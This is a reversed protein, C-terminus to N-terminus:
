LVIFSRLAGSDAHAHARLLAVTRQVFEDLRNSGSFSIIVLMVETTSVTVKARASDRTPSGFPGDRDAFVPLGAVNIPDKGIGPYIEGPQGIRFSVPGCVRALDYCGASHRSELSILNNIDVVTNISDLGKGQLIRRFLSEQSGRYRSPEKGTARFVQRLAKIEPVESLAPLSQTRLIEDACQSILSWLHADHETVQVSACVVGLAVHPAARRLEPDISLDM